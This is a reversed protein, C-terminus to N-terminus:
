ERLCLIGGTLAMPCPPEIRRTPNYACSWWLRIDSKHLGAVIDSPIKINDM